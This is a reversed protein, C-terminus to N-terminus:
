RTKFLSSLGQMAKSRAADADAEASSFKCMHHHIEHAGHSDALLSDLVMSLNVCCLQHAPM